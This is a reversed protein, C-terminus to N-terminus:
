AKRYRGHYMKVIVKLKKWKKLKAAMTRQPIGNMEGVKIATATDFVKDLAQLIKQEIPDLIIENKLNFVTEAHQILDGILGLATDFDTQECYIIEEDTIQNRKRIATLIMAIRFMMLGHRKITAVFDLDKTKCVEELIEAMSIKFKKIQEKTFRFEIPEGVESLKFYLNFIEEGAEAFIPNPDNDAEGFVERWEDIENFYYYIIRSFLGNKTSKIFPQLQDETGSLLLSLKPNPIKDFQREMKRSISLPEHHFAKRLVDSFDGFDMKMIANLTDTESEIIIGGFHANKIKDYLDSSSINGPIIKLELPPYPGLDKEEGASKQKKWDKQAKKSKRQVEDDIKEILKRAYNMVGKGSAPPALFMVYLNASVDVHAYRGYINPLANSLAGLSSLLVIDKERGEFPQTIKRLLDPLNQYLRESLPEFDM